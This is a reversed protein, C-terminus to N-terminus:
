KGLYAEIVRPDKQIDEPHGEAIKSGHHLVIVWDSIGMVLHMNHEVLIITQGTQKVKLVFDGMAETERINLGAVPEDLLVLRPGGALARAIELRRQEAVSIHTAPWDAKERLEFFDLLEEARTRIKEEERRERPPHLMGLLFGSRTLPHMGVMVNERVTLNAFLQIQQYTRNIGRAAIQFPKLGRLSAGDFLIDGERASYVGSIVNLLSTKGAGNPGIIAVIRQAPVSFSLANLAELGGFRLTLNRSELLIREESLGTEESRRTKM